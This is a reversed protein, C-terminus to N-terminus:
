VIFRLWFVMTILLALDQLDALLLLLALYFSLGPNCPANALRQPLLWLAHIGSYGVYTLKSKLFSAPKM